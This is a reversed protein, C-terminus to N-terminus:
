KKEGTFLKKDNLENISEKTWITLRGAVGGPALMTVNLNTVPITEIGQISKASKLLECEKSVVILPGKKTKYKRGRMKGVGARVKKEKTRELEDKLGIAEIMKKVQSTKSLKEANEVIIPLDMKSIRHNRKEVLEKNVTASIASRIAFMNEKKNIKELIIKEVMPPHAVRGGRVQPAKDATFSLRNGNRSM